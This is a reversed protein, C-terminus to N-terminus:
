KKAKAAEAAKGNEAKEPIEAFGRAILKKAQDDPLELLRGRPHITSPGHGGDHHALNTKLKIKM